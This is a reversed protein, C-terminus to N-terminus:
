IHKIAREFGRMVNVEQMARESMPGQHTEPPMSYADTGARFANDDCPATTTEPVWWIISIVQRMRPEDLISRLLDSTRM